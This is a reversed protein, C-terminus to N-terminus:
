RLGEFLQRVKKYIWKVPSTLPLYIVDGKRAQKLLLLIGRIQQNSM